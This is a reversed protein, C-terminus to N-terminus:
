GCRVPPRQAAAAPVPISGLTRAKARRDPAVRPARRAHGADEGEEGAEGDSARMSDALTRLRQIEAEQRAAVKTLRAEDRRRAERYQSYTGRYEVLEGDDLHLVRTISRDLLM